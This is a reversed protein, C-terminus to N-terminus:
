PLRASWEAELRAQVRAIARFSERLHRRTLTDLANPDLYTSRDRGERLDGIERAFQLEFM